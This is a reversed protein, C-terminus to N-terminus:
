ASTSLTDLGAERTTPLELGPVRREGTVAFSDIITTTPSAELGARERVAVYLVPHIREITGEWELRSFYDRVTIKPPLDPSFIPRRAAKTARGGGRHRRIRTTGGSGPQAPDAEGTARGPPAVATM